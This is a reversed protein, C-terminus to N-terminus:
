RVPESWNLYNVRMNYSESYASATDLNSVPVITAKSYQRCSGSDCVWSNRAYEGLVLAYRGKKDKVTTIQERPLYSADVVNVRVEFMASLPQPRDQPFIEGRCIYTLLGQMQAPTVVIDAPQGAPVTQGPVSIPSTCAVTVGYPYSQPDIHIQLSQTSTIRKACMGPKGDMDRCLSGGIYVPFEPSNAQASVAFALDDQYPLSSCAFLGVLVLAAVVSSRKTQHRKM